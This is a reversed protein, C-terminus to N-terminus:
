PGAFPAANAPLILKDGPYVPCQLRGALDYYCALNNAAIIAQPSINCKRGISWVWEGKQVTYPSSCSGGSAGSTDGGTGGSAGEESGTNDTVPAQTPEAVAPPETAEPQPTALPESVPPQTAEGGTEPQQGGSQAQATQTAFEGGAVATSMNDPPQQGEGSPQEGSVNSGDPIATPSESASRTCGVLGLALILALILILKKINM